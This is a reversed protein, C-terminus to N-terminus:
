AARRHRPAFSYGGTGSLGGSDRERGQTAAQLHSSVM